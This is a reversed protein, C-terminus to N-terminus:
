DIDSFMCSNFSVGEVEKLYVDTSWGGVETREVTYTSGVTLHKAAKEVAGQYGADPKDFVVKSGEKAYIDM